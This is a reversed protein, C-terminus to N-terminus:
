TELEEALEKRVTVADKDDGVAADFALELGRMQDRLMTIAAPEGAMERKVRSAALEILGIASAPLHEATPHHTALRQAMDGASATVKAGHYRSLEPLNVQIMERAEKKAPEGIKVPVFRRKAAGSDKAEEFYRKWEEDTCAGILRLTGSSLFTKLDDGLAEWLRHVEDVFVFVQHGNTAANRVDAELDNLM